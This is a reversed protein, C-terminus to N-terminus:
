AIPIPRLGPLRAVPVPISGHRTPLASGRTSCPGPVQLVQRRKDQKDRWPMIQISRRGGAASRQLVVADVGWTSNYGQTIHKACLAGSTHMWVTLGHVAAPGFQAGGGIRVAAVARATPRVDGSEPRTRAPHRLSPRGDGGRWSPALDQAPATIRNPGLTLLSPSFREPTSGSDAAVQAEGRTRGNLRVIERQSPDGPRSGSAFILGRGWCLTNLNRRRLGSLDLYPSFFM